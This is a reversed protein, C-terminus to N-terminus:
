GAATEGHANPNPSGMLAAGQNAKAASGKAHMFFSAVSCRM